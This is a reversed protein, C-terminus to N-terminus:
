AIIFLQLYVTIPRIKECVLEPISSFATGLKKSVTKGIKLKTNMM